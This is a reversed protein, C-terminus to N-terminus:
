RRQREKWHYAGLPVVFTAFWNLLFYRLFLATQTSGFVRGGLYVLVVGVAGGCLIGYSLSFDPIKLQVVLLYGLLVGSLSGGVRMALGSPALLFLGGSVLAWLILGKRFSALRFQCSFISTFALAIVFGLGAGALVDQLYHVGLYLRSLSVLITLIGAVVYWPIKRLSFALFFWFSSVSQAHGSPFSFDETLELVRLGEGQPRPLAWFNKGLFNLFLSVLVVTALRFAFKREVRWYLFVLVAFYFFEGGLASIGRMVVDLFPHSFGQVVLLPKLSGFVSM